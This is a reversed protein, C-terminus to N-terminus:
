AGADVYARVVTLDGAAMKTLPTQGGFFRNPKKIWADADDPSYVVQLRKWIGAVDEIRRLADDPLQQGHKWDAALGLIKRATADNVVWENM